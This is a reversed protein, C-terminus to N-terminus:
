APAPATSSRVILESALRLPEVAGNAGPPVRDVLIRAAARGAEAAPLRVTTLRPRVMAALGTDDFGVVSIEEPVRVGRDALRNLLGVALEDNFALVATAPTALVLDAARMGASFRSDRVDIELGTLELQACAARFARLRTTNSYIPPGTLYAITRHGLAHLHEVAQAAGDDAPILAAPVDPLEYNVLVVPTLGAIERVQDDSMSPSVLVLGDVQAAMARTLRHEDEGGHEAGAVFLAYDDRRAEQQVAKIIVAAFSNAIDHVVIGLNGSRGRALSRAVPHPVYGLEDAAALVRRRTDDAVADPQSFVRSVTAPSVGARTAVQRISM